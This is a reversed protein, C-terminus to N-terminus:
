SNLIEDLFKIVKINHLLKRSPASIQGHVFPQELYLVRFYLRRLGFNMTSSMSVQVIIQDEFYCIDM